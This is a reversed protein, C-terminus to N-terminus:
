SPGVVPKETVPLGEGVVEISAQRMAEMGERKCSVPVMVGDHMPLAPVGKKMLRMLTAMLIRSETFMFDLGMDKGFLSVLDPHHTGIAAMAISATMGKPLKKKVRSPLQQMERPSSLLANLARKAGKRHGELGPIAYLDGSPPEKAVHHYALQPFMSSFDLDAVPEYDIRLLYRKSKKLNMWFGGYLRGHLNFAIPDDPSRLTFRRVLRFPFQPSGILEIKHSLLFDNIMEMETRLRISEANDDYGIPVQPQKKGRIRRVKPRAVLQILEEGEVKITDTLCVDHSLLLERLAGTAEITTSLAKFVAEHRIIHGQQEMVKLVKPLRYFRDRDYRTKAKHATQIVLRSGEPRGKHLHMLNAMLSLTIGTLGDKLDSRFKKNPKTFVALNAQLIDGILPPASDVPLSLWQDFMLDKPPPHDIGEWGDDDELQDM